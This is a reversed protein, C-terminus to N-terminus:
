LAGGHAVKAAGITQTLADGERIGGCIERVTPMRRQQWRGEWAACRRRMADDNEHEQQSERGHADPATVGAVDQASGADVEDAIRAADTDLARLFLWQDQDEEM